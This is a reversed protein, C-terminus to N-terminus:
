DKFPVNPSGSHDVTSGFRNESPTTAQLRLKFDELLNADAANRRGQKCVAGRVGVFDPRLCKVRWLNASSLSGAIVVVLGGRHCKEIANKLQEDDFWGFLDRKKCFTDLLVTQVLNSHAAFEIVEDISPAGCQAHDFYGVAVPQTSDPLNGFLRNWSDQWRDLEMAQALGIKVFQFRDVLAVSYRDLLRPWRGHEWDILEGAAFSLIPRQSVPRDAALLSVADLTKADVSGLAGGNPEKLDLIDVGCGLCLQAEAVDRVSVLLKPLRSGAEHQPRSAVTLKEPDLM